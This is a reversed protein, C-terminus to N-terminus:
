NCVNYEETPLTMFAKKTSHLQIRISMEVDAPHTITVFIVSNSDDILESWSIKVLAYLSAMTVVMSVINPKSKNSVIPQVVAIGCM